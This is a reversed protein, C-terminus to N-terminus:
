AISSWANWEERAFAAINEATFGFERLCIEGPASAGFRDLGFQADSYTAWGFTTAAEVSITLADTGLVEEQYEPDQAEFLAWSPMNVVRTAIGERELHEAAKLCLQVESGTGILVLDPEGSGAERLIYAGFQSPHDPGPPPTISPVKQRTLALASPADTLALAWLWCAATENGDAPRMLNFNPTARLMAMQEIPQHTPGDEGLGVSDHTFVFISPCKMLAALRLSPKCYDSFILFTAGYGRLGGHLTIGNIAAAMAHERIGFALNRNSRTDHQFYGDEEILTFNSEALDASGGILNPVAKALAQIVEQSAQRTAVAEPFAPLAASEIGFDGELCRRFLDADAPYSAAYNEMLLNWGAEWDHGREIATRFKALVDPDVAFPELDKIGLAEKTLRVEEEGLPAGHSKATGAKNPSGYGITTRCIILSPRDTAAKANTIAHDVDDVNLGDVSQVHWGYASFRDAVSETFAISTSGDITIRNDDYLVILKGLKLHGALSAAESAVGEMLDGDSALVYTYHDVVTADLKNFRAALHAEAIAFGISTAFGQGLPGTAMEVGQTHTNEPHGPTMSDWQRFRKLEELPLDYGTLYLLSYLLMSGHGASLIFRDRDFWEPNKPNFRLHRAFLAYAMAAAGLPLGPHGSKAQQVGDISLARIANVCDSDSVSHPSSM